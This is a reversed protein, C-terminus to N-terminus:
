KYKEKMSDSQVTAAVNTGLCYVALALAGFIANFVDDPSFFANSMNAAPMSMSVFFSNKKADYM